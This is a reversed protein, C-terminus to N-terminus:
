AILYEDCRYQSDQDDRSVDTNQLVQVTTQFRTQFWTKDYIRVVIDHTTFQITRNGRKRADITM